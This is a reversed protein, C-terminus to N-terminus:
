LSVQCALLRDWLLQRCSRHMAHIGAHVGKFRCRDRIDPTDEHTTVVTTDVAGLYLVRHMTRSMADRSFGVDRICGTPGLGSKGGVAREGPADDEGLHVAGHQGEPLERLPPLAPSEAKGRLPVGGRADTWDRRYAWACSM